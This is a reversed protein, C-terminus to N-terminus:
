EYGSLGLNGVVPDQPTGSVECGAVQDMDRSEIVVAYGPAGEALRVPQRGRLAVYEDVTLYNAWDQTYVEDYGARCVDVLGPVTWGDGLQLSNGDAGTLSPGSDTPAVSPTPPASPAASSPSPTSTPLPSGSTTSPPASGVGPDGVGVPTGMVVLSVTVTALAVVSGIGAVLAM